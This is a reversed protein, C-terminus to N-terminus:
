GFKAVCLIHFYSVNLCGECKKDVITSGWLSIQRNKFFFKLEKRFKAVLFRIFGM